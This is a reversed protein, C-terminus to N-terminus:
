MPMKEKPRPPRIGIRVEHRSVRKSVIQRSVGLQDAAAKVPADIRERRKKEVLAATQADLDAISETSRTDRTPSAALSRLYETDVALRRTQMSLIDAVTVRHGAVEISLEEGRVLILEARRQGHWVGIEWSGAPKTLGLRRLPGLAKALFRAIADGTVQWRRLRDFPVEIRDMDDLKDCFIFAAKGDPYDVVEVTMSCRCDCGDCTASRASSTAVLLGSQKLVAVPGAPWGALEAETIHVVGDSSDAIRALVTELVEAGTM